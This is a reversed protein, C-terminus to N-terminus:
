TNKAGPMPLKVYTFNTRCGQKELEAVKKRLADTDPLKMKGWEAVEEDSGYGINM